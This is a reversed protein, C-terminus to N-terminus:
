SHHSSVCHICIPSVRYTCFPYSHMGYILPLVTRDISLLAFFAWPIPYCWWCVIYYIYSNRVFIASENLQPDIMPLFSSIFLPVFTFILLIAVARRSYLWKCLFPSWPHLINNSVCLYLNSELGTQQVNETGTETEGQNQIVASPVHDAEASSQFHQRMTMRDDFSMNLDSNTLMVNMVLDIGGLLDVLDSVPPKYDEDSQRKENFLRLLMENTPGTDNISDATPM